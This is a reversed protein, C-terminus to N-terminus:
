VGTLRASDLKVGLAEPDLVGTSLRVIRAATALMEESFGVDVRELVGVLTRSLKAGTEESLETM